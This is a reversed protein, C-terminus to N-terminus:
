RQGFLDAASFAAMQATNGPDFIAPPTYDGGRTPAEVPMLESAIQQAGPGLWALPDGRQPQDGAANLAQTASAAVLARYNPDNQLQAALYDPVAMGTVVPQGAAGAALNQQALQQIINAGVGGYGEQQSLAQGPYIGWSTFQEPTAPKGAQTQESWEYSGRGKYELIRGTNPDVALNPESTQQFGQPWKPGPDPGWFDYALKGAELVLGPLTLVPNALGLSFGLSEESLAPITSAALSAAGGLAGLGSEFKGEVTPSLAVGALGGATQLGPAVSGLGFGGGSASSAGSLTYDAPNLVPAGADGSLSFQAPNASFWPQDAAGTLSFAGSENATLWAPLGPIQQGTNLLQQIDAATKDGVGKMAFLQQWWTPSQTPASAGGPFGPPEPGGPIEPFEPLSLEPFAPMGPMGPRQPGAGPSPAPGTSPFEAPLTGQTRVEIDQGLVPSRGRYFLPDLEDGSGRQFGSAEIM